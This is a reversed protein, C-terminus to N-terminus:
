SIATGGGHGSGVSDRKTRNLYSAFALVMQFCASAAAAGPPPADIERQEISKIDGRHNLRM